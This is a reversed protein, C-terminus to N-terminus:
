FYGQRSKVDQELQSRFTRIREKQEIYAQCLAVHLGDVGIGERKVRYVLEDNWLNIKREIRGRPTRALEELIGRPILYNIEEGAREKIYVLHDEVSSPHYDIRLREDQYLPKEDM